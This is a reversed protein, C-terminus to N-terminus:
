LPLKNESDFKGALVGALATDPHAEDGWGGYLLNMCESTLHTGAWDDAVAARWNHANLLALAKAGDRLEFAGRMTMM